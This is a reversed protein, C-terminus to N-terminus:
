LGNHRRLNYRAVVRSGPLITALLHLLKQLVLAGSGGQWCRARRSRADEAAGPQATVLRTGDKEGPVIRADLGTFVLPKELLEPTGIGGEM